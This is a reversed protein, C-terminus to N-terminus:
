RSRLKFFSAVGGKKLGALRRTRAVVDSVKETNFQDAQQQYFAALPDM